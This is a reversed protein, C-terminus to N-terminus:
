LLTEVANLVEDASITELDGSVIRVHRGRPAWLGPDTPGFIAVVPSGVAAALHTTGADNGIYVRADALWCGLEYLDPIKVAGALPEHPGACWAVPGKVREAVARFKEM